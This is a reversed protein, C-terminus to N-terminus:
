KTNGRKHNLFLSLYYGTDAFNRFRYIITKPKAPFSVNWTSSPVQKRLLYTTERTETSIQKLVKGMRSAKHKLVQELVKKLLHKLVLKICLARQAEVTSPMTSM